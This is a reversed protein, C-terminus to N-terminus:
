RRVVFSRSPSEFARYVQGMGGAGLSARIQYAGFSSGVSLNTGTERLPPLDNAM